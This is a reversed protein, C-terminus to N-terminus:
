MRGETNKKDVAAHAQQADYDGRANWGARYTTLLGVVVAVVFGLAAPTADGSALLAALVIVVVLWM